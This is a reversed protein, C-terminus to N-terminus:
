GRREIMGLFPRPASVCACASMKPIQADIQEVNRGDRRRLKPKTTKQGEGAGAMDESSSSFKASPGAGSIWMWRM